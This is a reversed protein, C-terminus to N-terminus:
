HQTLAWFCDVKTFTIGFSLLIFWMYGYLSTKVVCILVHVRCISIIFFVSRIDCYARLINTLLSRIYPFYTLISM